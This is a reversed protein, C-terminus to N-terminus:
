KMVINTLCIKDDIEEKKAIINYFHWKKNDSERTYEIEDFKLVTYKDLCKKVTEISFTNIDKRNNWSDRNGFLQGIFYGNMEICEYIKDWLIDFKDPTCFPISFFAMVLQTKPLKVEEFSGEIFSVYNIEEYNLRELIFSKNLQRDICTVNVGKKLLYVTENGSGCGLDIANNVEYNDCFEVLLNDIKDNHTRSQYNTWDKM